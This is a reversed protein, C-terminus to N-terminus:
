KIEQEKLYWEAFRKMLLMNIRVQTHGMKLIVVSPDITFSDENFGIGQESLLKATAIDNCDCPRLKKGM